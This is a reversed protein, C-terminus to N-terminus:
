VGEINIILGIIKGTFSDLVESNVNETKRNNKVNLVRKNQWLAKEGRRPMFQEFMM